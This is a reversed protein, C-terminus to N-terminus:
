RTLRTWVFKRDEILRFFLDLVAGVIGISIMGAIVIDTRALTYAHTILYGVGSISGPLMEASVLCMWAVGLGIRMGNVISPSAAPLLIKRFIDWEGAGLVRASDLLTSRVGMVGHIASTLVPYFAGIFIIFVMSLKLNNLYLYATGEEVGFMSALSAVGFWALVLPVWALPPIPRFLALFGNLLRHATGYYGMLIGLPIALCVALLYGALVRVLSIAVNTALSGMAILSETPQLFLAAVQGVGPLIVENNLQRDIVGWLVLFLVPVLLYAGIRVLVTRFEM